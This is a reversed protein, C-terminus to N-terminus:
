LANTFEANGLIDAVKQTSDLLVPSIMISLQKIVYLLHEIVEIAQEKTSEDKFLKRPETRQMLENAVQVGEYWLKM